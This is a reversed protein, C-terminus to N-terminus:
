AGGGEDGAKQPRPGAAAPPRAPKKKEKEKGAQIGAMEIYERVGAPVHKRYLSDLFGEMEADLDTNKQSLFMKVAGLKEEDFSFSVSAKKM